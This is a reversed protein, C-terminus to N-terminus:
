RKTVGKNNVFQAAEPETECISISHIGKLPREDFNDM